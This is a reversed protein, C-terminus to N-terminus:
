HQLSQPFHVDASYCAQAHDCFAAYEFLIETQIHDDKLFENVTAFPYYPLSSADFIYHSAQNESLIVFLHIM